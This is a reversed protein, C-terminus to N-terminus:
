KSTGFGDAVWSSSGLEKEEEKITVEPEEEKIKRQSGLETFVSITKKPEIKPVPGWSFGPPPALSAPKAAQGQGSSHIPSSHKKEKAGRM